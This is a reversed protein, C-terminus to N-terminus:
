RHACVWEIASLSCMPPAILRTALHLPLVEGVLARVLGNQMPPLGMQPTRRERALPQLTSAIEAPPTLVNTRGDLGVAVIRGGPLLVVAGIGQADHERKEM